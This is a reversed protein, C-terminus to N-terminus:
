ECYKVGWERYLTKDLKTIVAKKLESGYKEHSSDVVIFRIDESSVPSASVPFTLMGFIAVFMVLIKNM